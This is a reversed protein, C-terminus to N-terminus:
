NLLLFAPHARPIGPQRTSCQPRLLTSHRSLSLSGRLSARADVIIALLGRKEKSKEGGVEIGLM